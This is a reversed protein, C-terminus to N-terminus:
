KEWYKLILTKYEGCFGENWWKHFVSNKQPAWFVLKVLTERRGAQLAEKNM